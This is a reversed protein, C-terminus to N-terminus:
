AADSTAADNPHRLVLLTLGHLLDSVTTVQLGSRWALSQFREVTRLQGSSWTLLALDLHDGAGTAHPEELIPEILWAESDAGMVQALTGFLRTVTQDDVQPLVRDVIYVDQAHPLLESCLFDGEVLTCRATLGREIVLEQAQRAAPPHSVLTGRIEPQNELLSTLLVGHGGGIVTVTTARETVLRLSLDDAIAAAHRTAVRRRLAALNSDHDDADFVTGGAFTEAAGHSRLKTGTVVASLNRAAGWGEHSVTLMVEDWWAGVDNSRMMFGAQTLSYSCDPEHLRVLGHRVM